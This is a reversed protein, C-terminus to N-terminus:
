KEKHRKRALTVINILGQQGRINKALMISTAWLTFGEFVGVQM